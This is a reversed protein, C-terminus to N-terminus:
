DKIEKLFLRIDKKDVDYSWVRNDFNWDESGHALTVDKELYEETDINVIDVVVDLANSLKAWLRRAGFYQMEDGLIIYKEHKVLFKYMETAIGNGRKTKAVRVGDVNMLKKRIKFDRAISKQETLKIEFDVEFEIKGKTSTIFNGSIYTDELTFILYETGKIKFKEVQKWYKDLVLKTITTIMEKSPEWDGYGAISMEKLIEERFKGM